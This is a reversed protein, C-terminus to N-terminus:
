YYRLFCALKSINQYVRWPEMFFFAEYDSVFSKELFGAPTPQTPQEFHAGAGSVDSVDPVFVKGSVKAV